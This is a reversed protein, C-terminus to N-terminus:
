STRENAVVTKILLIITSIWGVKNCGICGDQRERMYYIVVPHMVMEGQVDCGNVERIWDGEGQRQLATTCRGQSLLV